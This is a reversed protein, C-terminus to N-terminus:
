TEIYRKSLLQVTQKVTQAVPAHHVTRLIICELPRAPVLVLGM